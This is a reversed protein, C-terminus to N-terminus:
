QITIYATPSPTAGITVIVPQRGSPVGSPITFNIQLVGVSWTPIAVYSTTATVGGVTVTVAERPKPVQNGTPALGDQVSPTIQGVGTVYVTAAGGVSVTQAPNVNGSGDELTFIGPAAPSVTFFYDTLQYPNGLNLDVAGSVEYPIQLNVQNPGVYYLPVPYEVAATNCNGPCIYAEFGAMYEPLPITTAPQSLTGLATGYVAMIMGPAFTQQGSAANSAGGVNLQAQPGQFPITLSTSWGPGSFAFTENTPVNVSSLSYCGSISGRGPIASTGGFISAIQSSYDTGNISLGTLTTPFGVEESVTIAFNWTGANSSCSEAAGQYVPNQDLSPVIVPGTPAAAAWLQMLKNV